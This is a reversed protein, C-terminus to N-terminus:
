EKAIHEREERALLAKQEPTLQSYPMGYAAEPPRLTETTDAPTRVICVRGHQRYLILM